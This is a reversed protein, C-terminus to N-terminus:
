PRGAPPRGDGPPAAKRHPPRPPGPPGPPALAADTPNKALAVHLTARAIAEARRADRVAGDADDRTRRLRADDLFSSATDTLQREVSGPAASVNSVTELTTSVRDITRSLDALAPTDGDRAPPAAPATRGAARARAGAGRGAPRASRPEASAGLASRDRERPRREGGRVSRGRRAIGVRARVAIARPLHARRGPTSSGDHDRGTRECIPRWSADCAGRHRHPRARAAVAPSSGGGGGHRRDLGRHDSRRGRAWDVYRSSGDPAIRCAAHWVARPPRAVVLRAREADADPREVLRTPTCCARGPRPGPCCARGPRRAPWRRGTAAAPRRCAPPSGAPRTRRVAGCSPGAAQRTCRAPLRETAAATRTRAARHGADSGRVCQRRRIRARCFRRVSRPM